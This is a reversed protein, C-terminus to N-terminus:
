KEAIDLYVDPDATKGNIKIEFHLHEGQETEYGAAQAITGIVDGRKVTDGKKLNAKADIYKYTTTMGDAHTLTVYNEGIIHNTVVDTVTGDLVACVNTGAAGEFDMGQHVCYRDLTVDYMFDYKSTVDGSAVPMAMTTPNVTPKDDDPKNDDPKEGNGPKNDIEDGNGPTVTQQGDDIFNDNGSRGVTLIVTVTVGAIVLLCLALILYTLLVKKKSKKNEEKM